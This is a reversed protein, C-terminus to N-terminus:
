PQSLNLCLWTRAVPLRATSSCSRGAPLNELSLLVAAVRVAEQLLEPLLRLVDLRELEHELLGLVLVSEEEGSGLELLEERVM